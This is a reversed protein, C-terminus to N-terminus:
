PQYATISKNKFVRRVAVSTQALAWGVNLDLLYLSCKATGAPLHILLGHNQDIGMSPLHAVRSNTKPDYLHGRSYVAIQTTAGHPYNPEHKGTKLDAVMVRGDPLQVIRDFSGAAEVEDAVIFQEKVLVKLPELALRYAAMDARYEIPITDIDCGDDVQESFSHLATGINAARKSKAATMAQEVVDNLGRDDGTMAQALGVLDPSAGMGIAVQRQMWKTLASKDDLTKALTSVRTYPIPKGGDVPTILPRDWRDRLPVAKLPTFTPAIM